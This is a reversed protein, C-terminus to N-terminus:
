LETWPEEDSFSDCHAATSVYLSFKIKPRNSIVDLLVSLSKMLELLLPEVVVLAIIEECGIQFTDVKFWTQDYPDGFIFFVSEVPVDPIFNKTTHVRHDEVTVLEM